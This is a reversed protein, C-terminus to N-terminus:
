DPLKILQPHTRQWERFDNTADVISELQPSGPSFKEVMKAYEDLAFTSLIDKARFVFVPEGPFLHAVIDAAKGPSLNGPGGRAAQQRAAHDAAVRAQAEEVSETAM